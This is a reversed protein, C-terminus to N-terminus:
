DVSAMGQVGGPRRVSIDSGRNGSQLGPEDCIIRGAHLSYGRKRLALPSMGFFRSFSRSFCSLNTHGVHAMLESVPMRTSLLLERAREMSLRRRLHEPPEGFVARFERTFHAQSMRAAASAAGVCSGSVDSVLVARGRALRLFRGIRENASRGRCRAVFAMYSRQATLVAEVNSDLSAPTVSLGRISHLRYLERLASSVESEPAHAMQMPRRFPDGNAPAWRTSPSVYLVRAGASAVYRATVDVGDRGFAWGETLVIRHDPAEVSVSGGLVLVFAADRGNEFIRGPQTEISIHSTCYMGNFRTTVGIKNM